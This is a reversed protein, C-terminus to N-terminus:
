AAEGGLRSRQWEDAEAPNFCAARQGTELRELQPLEATCRDIRNRCRPAFPCSDPESLM